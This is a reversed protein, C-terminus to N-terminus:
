GAGTTACHAASSLPQQSFSVLVTLLAIVYPIIHGLQTKVYRKLYTPPGDPPPFDRLAVTEHFLQSSSAHLAQHTQPRPHHHRPRRHEYAALGALRRM